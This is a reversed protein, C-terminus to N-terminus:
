KTNLIAQVETKLIPLQKNCIIWIAADEVLDYDHVIIHRLSIIRKKDSIQLAKDLKDAKWLAEGIISLRREVADITKMDNVYASLTATHQIHNEILVISDFIDQVLKKIELNM